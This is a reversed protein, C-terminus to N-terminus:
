SMRAFQGFKKEAAIRYAEAADSKQEFYGLHQSKSDVSIRAQWKGVGKHWRVGKFGTRNERNAARNGQNQVHEAVRLNDFANNRKNLDHHDIESRPWEGTVYLWALRHAYFYMKDICIQWYGAGSTRGAIDGANLGRRSARWRFTGTSRDYHLMERVRDATMLREKEIRRTAASTM